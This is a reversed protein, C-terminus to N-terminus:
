KKSNHDISCQREIYDLFKNFLRGNKRIHAYGVLHVRASKNGKMFSRMTSFFAFIAGSVRGYLHFSLVSYSVFLSLIAVLVISEFITIQESVFYGVNNSDSKLIKLLLDIIDSHMQTSVNYLFLGSGTALIIILIFFHFFFVKEFKPKHIGQYHTPIERPTLSKKELSQHIYQFFLDSFRTLLRYDSFLDVVYSGKEGEVQKRSFEGIVEFPRLLVKGIYLGTIFLLLLSIFVAGLQDVMVLTAQTIFDERLDQNFGIDNSELYISNLSVVIWTLYYFISLVILYIASIKIGCSMLFSNEPEKITKFFKKINLM